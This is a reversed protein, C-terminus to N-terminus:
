TGDFVKTWLMNQEEVFVIERYVSEETEDNDPMTGRIVRLLKPFVIDYM